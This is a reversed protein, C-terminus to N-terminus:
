AQLALSQFVAYSATHTSSYVHTPYPHEYSCSCAVPENMRNPKPAYRSCVLCQVLSQFPRLLCCSPTPYQIHGQFTSLAQITLLRPLSQGCYSHPPNLFVMLTFLTPKMPCLNPRGHEHYPPSHITLSCTLSPHQFCFTSVKFALIQELPIGSPFVMSITTDANM